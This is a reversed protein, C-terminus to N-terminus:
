RYTHAAICMVPNCVDSCVHLFVFMEQELQSIRLVFKSFPNYFYTILEPVWIVVSHHNTLVVTYNTHSRAALAGDKTM